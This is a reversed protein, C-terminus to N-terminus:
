GYLVNRGIHLIRNKIYNSIIKNKGERKKRKYLFIFAYYILRIEYYAIKGPMCLQLAEILRHHRPLHDIRQFM